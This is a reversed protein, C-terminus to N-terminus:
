IDAGLGVRGEITVRNLKSLYRCATARIPIVSAHLEQLFMWRCHSNVDCMVRQQASFACARSLVRPPCSNRIKMKQLVDNTGAHFALGSQQNGFAAIPCAAVRRRPAHAARPKTIYFPERVASDNRSKNRSEKGGFGINEGTKNPKRAV